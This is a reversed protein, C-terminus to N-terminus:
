YQCFNLMVHEPAQLADSIKPTLRKKKQVQKERGQFLTSKRKALMQVLKLVFDIREKEDNEKIPRQTDPNTWISRAKEIWKLLPSFVYQSELGFIAFTMIGQGFNLFTDLFKIGVLIPTLKGSM